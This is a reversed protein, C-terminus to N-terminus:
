ISAQRIKSRSRLWTTLYTFQDLGEVAAVANKRDAGRELPSLVSTEPQDRPIDRMIGLSIGDLDRPSRIPYGMPHTALQNLETAWVRSASAGCHVGNNGFQFASTMGEM